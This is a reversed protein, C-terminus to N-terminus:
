SEKNPHGKVLELFQSELSKKHFELTSIIIGNEILWRNLESTTLGEELSIYIVNDKVEQISVKPYKRLCNELDNMNEASVSALVKESLLESVKGQAIKEGNKLIVVDTCVKEVEDLIHSALIITKGMESQKMIIDRVEAIGEPDLGNTPEDLVLVDPNGLLASALALRQKMGLSLTYYASKSRNSLGVLDLVRQIDNLGMRRALAVIKLNKELNLYPFFYPVEVLAGIHKNADPGKNGNFWQFSGSDPFKISLILGLTTTKGSGNPGLVGLVQGQNVEFSLNSVAKIRGFSKTLGEAKLITKM